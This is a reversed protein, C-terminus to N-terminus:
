KKSQHFRKANKDEKKHLGLMFYGIKKESLNSQNKLIVDIQGNYIVGIRDCIKMIESLEASVLLTAVGADRQEIIREHVYQTSNIDLGRSPQSAILLRPKQSFERALISKQINGGSLSKMLIRGDDAKIDFDMM